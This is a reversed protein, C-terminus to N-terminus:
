FQKPYIISDYGNMILWNFLTERMEVTLIKGRSLLWFNHSSPSAVIAFSYNNDLYVIQYDGEIGLFFSVKLKSNTEDISRANGENIIVKGERMCRNIVKITGNENILYTATINYDNTKEFWNNNRALEFWTGSYKQLDVYPVTLYDNSNSLFNGM